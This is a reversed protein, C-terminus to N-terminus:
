FTRAVGIEVRKTYTSAVDENGCVRHGLMLWTRWDRAFTMGGEAEFVAGTEGDQIWDVAPKLKLKWTYKQRWVDSLVFELKTHNIDKRDADGGLSNVQQVQFEVRSQHSAQDDFALTLPALMRLGASLQYHGSGLTEPDATPFTVEVFSPFAYGGAEFARFGVRAKIDGLRPEFPSGTFDTRADPFPLELRLLTVPGDLLREIKLTTKTSEDPTGRATNQRKLELRWQGPATAAGSGGRDKHPQTPLAPSTSAGEPQLAQVAAPACAAALAFCANVAFVTGLRRM